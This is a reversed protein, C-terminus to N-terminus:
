CPLMRCSGTKDDDKETMVYQVKVLILIRVKPTETAQYTKELGAVDHYSFFFWAIDSAIFSFSLAQFSCSFCLFPVSSFSFYFSQKLLSLVPTSSDVSGLM